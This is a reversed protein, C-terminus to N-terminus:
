LGQLSSVIEIGTTERLYASAVEPPVEVSERAISSKYIKQNGYPDSASAPTLQLAFKNQATQVVQIWMLDKFVFFTGDTGDPTIEEGIFEHGVINTFLKINGM